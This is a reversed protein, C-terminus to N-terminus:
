WMWQTTVCADSVVILRAKQKGLRSLIGTTDLAKVQQGFSTADLGKGLPMRFDVSAQGMSESQARRDTIAVFHAALYLEIQKLRAASMTSTGLDENVILNATTMFSVLELDTDVVALLETETIRFAM